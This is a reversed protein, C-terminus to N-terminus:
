PRITIGLEERLTTNIAKVYNFLKKTKAKESALDGQLMNEQRDLYNLTKAFYEVIENNDIGDVEGQIVKSIYPTLTTIIESTIGDMESKYARLTSLEKRAETLETMDEEDFDNVVDSLSDAHNSIQETLKAITDDKAKIRNQLTSKDKALGTYLSVIRDILYAEDGSEGIAKGILAEYRKQSDQYEKSQTTLASNELTLQRNAYDLEINTDALTRQDEVLSELYAIDTQLEGIRPVNSAQKQLRKRQKDVTLRLRSNETKIDAVLLADEAKQEPTQLVYTEGNVELTMVGSESTEILDELDPMAIVPAPGEPIDGKEILQNIAENDTESLYCSRLMENIEDLKPIAKGSSGNLNAVSVIPYGKSTDIQLDNARAYDHVFSTMTSTVITQLESELTRIYEIARDRMEIDVLDENHQERTSIKPDKIAHNSFATRLTSLATQINVSKEFRRLESSAFSRVDYAQSQMKGLLISTAQGSSRPLHEIGTEAKKAATEIAHMMSSYSSTGDELASFALESMVGLANKISFDSEQGTIKKDGGM